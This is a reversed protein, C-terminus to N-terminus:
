KARRKKERTQEINNYRKQRLIENDKRRFETDGRRKKM